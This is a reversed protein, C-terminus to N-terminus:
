PRDTDKAPKYTLDCTVEDAECRAYANRESARQPIPSHHRQPRSATPRAWGARAPGTTRIITPLDAASDHLAPAIGRPRTDAPLLRVPATLPM